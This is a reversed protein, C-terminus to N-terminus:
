GGPACSERFRNGFVTVQVTADREAQMSEEKDKMETFAEGARTHWTIEGKGRDASTVRWPVIM